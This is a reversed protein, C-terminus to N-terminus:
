LLRRALSAWVLASILFLITTVLILHSTRSAGMVIAAGRDSMFEADDDQLCDLDAQDLAYKEPSTRNFLKRIM